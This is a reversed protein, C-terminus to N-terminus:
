KAVKEMRARMRCVRLIEDFGSRNCEILNAPQLVIPKPRPMSREIEQGRHIGLEYFLAASTASSFIAVLLYSGIVLLSKNRQERRIRKDRQAMSELVISM